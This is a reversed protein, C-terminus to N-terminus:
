TTPSRRNLQIGLVLRPIFGWLQANQQIGTTAAKVSFIMANAPSPLHIVSATPVM